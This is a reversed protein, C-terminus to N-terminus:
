IFLVPYRGHEETKDQSSLLVCFEDGGVRGLLDNESSFSKMLIAGTDELVKDGMAHGLTDNVGKFNDLDLLLM